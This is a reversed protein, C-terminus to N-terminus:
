EVLWALDAFLAWTPPKASGFTIVSTGMIKNASSWNIM